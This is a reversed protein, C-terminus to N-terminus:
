IKFVNIGRNLLDSTAQIYAGAKVLSKLKEIHVSCIKEGSYLLPVGPPYPVIDEACIRDICNVMPVTEIETEEMVSYSIALKSVGAHITLDSVNREVISYNILCNKIKEVFKRADFCALPLVFLLNNIDGMETFIGEKELLTQLQYGSLECRSQVVVKLPDVQPNKDGSLVKVQPIERLQDAFNRASAIIQKLEKENLNALYHRALDLSAMIPYSPSSTQFVQLFYKVRELPVIQSNFHLFSGMTMAPLTKHASHIVIDAGSKIASKPFYDESAVFHSGHAEDILVVMKYQHASKIVKDLVVTHGYYTPNTLIVAKAERYLDITHLLEEELVHTAVLAENDIVPSIFIPEVKALRLAHLVSKHSNRQVIVQDGENCAAMIMALNGVTSGGVLFFSEEVGYFSATLTQADKIITAPNHLDDLGTLETVDINLISHYCDYAMPNFTQGNKHGPVHFSIREGKSFQRLADFLPTMLQNM